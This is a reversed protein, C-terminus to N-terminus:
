FTLQGGVQVLRGIMVDLPKLWTPGYTNNIALISSDNLLNYVDLNVRLRARSGLSFFKSVRLDLFTQRPEFLTQPAILPVTVSATCVTQTGCAALNRGLSPAIQANSVASNAQAPIGSLNQLVGSVAFGGPLAYSGYLKLQTQGKFPTVVLCNLLAQPTDVVFCANTVTRGTDLSGGFETGQGLRTSVRATLFDSHYWKGTGGDINSYHSPQSVELQGQGFKAPVVDYLGCVQYGGGGPLRSDRPATVCYPQFDAPALAVNHTVGAGLSGPGAALGIPDGFHDSWNRYYGGTMSVRSGLQQQVEATYDWFYDRNGFGRILDADYMTASPNIQGFYVNSLRGCEGNAGPNTLDCDPVYNHNADSWARTVTNVSTMVPSGVVGVSTAARGVYRGLSTKLATRGTGFLDYAVGLRPDLDTWCPLCSVKTFDRAAVLRGAPLQTAPVYANYYDFRLGYNLTLRKVTWRDQAYFGLDAKTKVKILQPMAWETISTPAANLFTYWVSENVITDQDFVHEQLQFGVKVAHSGTVYSASFREVYRDQVNHSRYQPKANYVLGTSAETISIDTPQVAFGYTDTVQDRTYTFGNRALSAGGELLLRNTMPSSWTVQYLGDPAFNYAIQAEPAVYGQGKDGRTYNFQTDAFASVKNKPSAQWTMRGAWSSLWEERYGPRTLDPTYFPTGQTKNFYEGPVDNKTGTFRAATFFWLRDKKVPGGANPNADYLHLVKSAALLGRARLTDSLNDSQLHQNTYTTDAGFKFRNGGDKPILNIRIGSADSEASIGGTEVVTEEVTAPNMIYAMNGAIALDDVQMGDFAMKGNAKGHITSAVANNATRLGAAGGSDNGGSMGPVLRAIGVFGKSGSPLAALLDASVVDQQKVNQTDVLPSQGSVTITEELAGVALDANVSATFGSMLEIGERRITKFGALAFTVSYTGPRLEVISYRGEGDTVVSRVKEILAPSAAEVSVGPLVAGSTDKVMGAIGSAQQASAAPSLLLACALLVGTKEVLNASMEAVAKSM